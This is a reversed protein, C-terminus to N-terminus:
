TETEIFLALNFDIVFLPVVGHPCASVDTHFNSENYFNSKIM